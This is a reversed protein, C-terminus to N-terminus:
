QRRVMRIAGLDCTPVCVACGVCVDKDVEAVDNLKLAGLPCADVCSSCASCKDADIQPMFPSAILTKTKFQRIGIFLPCCDTCCNCVCGDIDITHVLGEAHCKKLLAVAEDYSIQHAMGYKVTWRAVNGYHICTQLTHSCHKDPEAMWHSLRCPCDSVAICDQNKLTEFLNEGPKADDPIHEPHAFVPAFPFGLPCLRDRAWDILVQHLNRILEIDYPFRIGGWAGTEVLGPASSALVRYVPDEKDPDIWMTGKTAMTELKKKLNAKDIGTKASLESLTGGATGIQLAMKAEEPTFQLMLVKLMAPTNPLGIVHPDTKNIMDILEEYVANDAMSIKRELSHRESLV